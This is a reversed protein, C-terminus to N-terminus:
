LESSSDQPLPPHPWSRISSNTDARCSRRDLVRRAWHASVQSRELMLAVEDLGTASGLCSAPHFHHCIRRAHRQGPQGHHPASSRQQRPARGNQSSNLLVHFQRFSASSTLCAVQFKAKSRSPANWAVPPRQQTREVHAVSPLRNLAFIGRRLVSELYTLM